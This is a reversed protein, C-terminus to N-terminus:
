RLAVCTVALLGRSGSAVSTAPAVPLFPRLGHRAAELEGPPSATSLVPTSASRDAGRDIWATLSHTSGDAARAGTDRILATPPEPANVECTCRKAGATVTVGEPRAQNKAIACCSPASTPEACCCSGRGRMWGVVACKPSIAGIPQIAFLAALITALARRLLTPPQSM